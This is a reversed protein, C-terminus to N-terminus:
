VLAVGLRGRGLRGLEGDVAATAIASVLGMGGGLLAVVCIATAPVSVIEGWAILMSWFLGLTAALSVARHSGLAPDRAREDTDARVRALAMQGNTAGRAPVTLARVGDRVRVLTKTM